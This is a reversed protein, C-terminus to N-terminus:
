VGGLLNLVTQGLLNVVEAYFWGHNDFHDTLKQFFSKRKDIHKSDKMNEIIEKTEELLEHLARKDDESNCKEEIEQEIRSISNDVNLISNIVDGMVVNSNTANLHNINYTNSSLRSLKENYKKEREFYTRGAQTLIANYVTNSAWSVRILGNSDLEGVIGRVIDKEDNNVKEELFESINGGSNELEIIEKLLDKESDALEEFLEVRCGKKEFYQLSEPTLTVFWGGDIFNNYNSIYGYLKLDEMTEKISFRMYDPFESMNGNITYDKKENYKNLFVTLMTEANKSLLNMSLREKNHQILMEKQKKRVIENVQKNLEKELKKIDFKIEFKAM